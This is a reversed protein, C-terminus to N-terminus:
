REAEITDIARMGKAADWGELTHPMAANAAVVKARLAANFGAWDFGKAPLARIIEYTAAM